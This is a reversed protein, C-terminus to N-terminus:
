LKPLSVYLFFLFKGGLTLNVKHPFPDSKCKDFLAAAEIIPAEEVSSFVSNSTM